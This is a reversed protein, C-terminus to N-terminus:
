EVSREGRSSPDEGWTFYDRVLSRKEWPVYDSAGPLGSTMQAQRKVAPGAEGSGLGVPVGEEVGVVRESASGDAGSLGLAEKPPVALLEPRDGIADGVRQGSGGTGGLDAQRELAGLPSGVGREGPDRGAAEDAIPGRGQPSWRSVESPDAPAVSRPLDGRESRSRALAGALDRLASSRMGGDDGAMEQSAAELARGLSPDDGGVDAAAEALSRAVQRRTEPPLARASEALGSLGQEVAADDGSRLAAALSQTAPLESLARAVRDVPAEQWATREGISRRIRDSPAAALAPVERAVFREPGGSRQVTEPAGDGAARGLSSPEAGRAIRPLEGVSSAPLVSAGVCAVVAMTLGALQLQDLTSLRFPLAERPDLVALRVSADLVQRRALDGVAGSQALEVATAVRAQLGLRRDVIRAVEVSSSLRAATVVFPVALVALTAVLPLPHGIPLATTQLLTAVAALGLLARTASFALSCLLLRRRLRAVCCFLLSEAGLLHPDRAGDRAALGAEAM